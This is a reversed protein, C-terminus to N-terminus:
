WSCPSAITIAIDMYWALLGARQEVMRFRQFPTLSVIIIIGGAVFVITQNGATM